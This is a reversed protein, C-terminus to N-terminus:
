KIAGESRLMDLMALCRQTYTNEAKTREHGALRIAEREAANNEDLYYDILNKLQVWNNFGYLVIEKRDVFHDTIGPIYPAIQFGGRGPVEFFRDSYYYSDTFNVNLSDGIVIKSSSYLQNLEHGRITKQPWGYKVFRHGYVSQLWRILDGRYGWESHSYEIGGGVFVIDHKFHEVPEAIYCDDEFVAPPLYRQNIGHSEFIRRSERGNEPSFVWDTKWFTDAGIGGDRKIGAYKDLHFSVTPVGLSKIAELDSDDVYGVRDGKKWTRTWLFMASGKVREALTGQQIEDEQIFNVAHGLKELTQRIHSETNFSRNDSALNKANGVYSILM